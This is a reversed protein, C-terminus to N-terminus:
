KWRSRISNVLLRDNLVTRLDLLVRGERIRTIVPTPARRLDAALADPQDARLAILTTPLTQGPLSGGGITSEGPITDAQVSRAQCWDTLGALMRKARRRIDDAPLAIMRWVPVERAAEGRLYHLVTAGLAALTYKDARFARALPHKRCQEILLRTGVLIGAQPGGLLKDGSFTVISAGARLSEQPMPEHALGYQSTDLLAGSGVDDLVPVGGHGVQPLLGNVAPGPQNTLRVLQEVPVEDVFGVIRFNSTHVHLIAGVNPTSHLAQEYDYLHTRNTAGVELLRAGSEQLIEPIRFGGGIEVLQGRSIIVSSDRAIASLMLVTAAACNNVVLAAEAGTVQCLLQEVYAGRQGREGSLLDMELPSYASAAQMIADQAARSLVARGLNTHIIVGTANIVPRMHAERQATHLRERTADLLDQKTPPAGGARMTVRATMVSLRLADVVRQHGEIRRLDQLEDLLDNVSPLQRLPNESQDASQSDPQDAAPQSPTDSTNATPKASMGHNYTRTVHM